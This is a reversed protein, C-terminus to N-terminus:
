TPNQSGYQPLRQREQILNAPDFWGAQRSCRAFVMSEIEFESPFVYLGSAFGQLLCWPLQM